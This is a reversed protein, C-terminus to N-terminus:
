KMDMYSHYPDFILDGHMSKGKVPTMYDGYQVTLRKEWEAPCPLERDMFKMMETKEYWESKWILTKRGPLFMSPGCMSSKKKQWGAINCYWKSLRKYDAIRKTLRYTKKLISDIVKSDAAQIGDREAEYGHWVARIIKLLILQFMRILINDPIYCLAFVDIAIGRNWDAPYRKEKECYGTTDSRRIKMHYPEFGNETEWSQLFYKGKFEKHLKSFQLYDEFPMIIDIDDDWPIYGQHRVTGLLTGGDAYWTLGYKDCVKQFESLIDLEVKWLDKLEQQTESYQAEWEKKSTYITRNKM